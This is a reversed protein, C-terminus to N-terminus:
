LVRVRGCPRVVWSCTCAHAYAAFGGQSWGCGGVWTPARGSSPSFAAKKTHLARRAGKRSQDPACRRRRQRRRRRKCRQRGRQLLRPRIATNIAVLRATYKYWCARRRRRRRRVMAGCSRRAHLERNRAAAREDRLLLQVRRHLSAVHFLAVICFHFLGAAVVVMAHACRLCTACM